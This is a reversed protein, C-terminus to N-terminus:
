DPNRTTPTYVDYRVGDVLLDSTGGGARTGMPPRLTVVRGSDAMHQAARLESASYVGGPVVTLRGGKGPLPMSGANGKLFNVLANRVGQNSLAARGAQYGPLAFDLGADFVTAATPSGTASLTAQYTVTPTPQNTLLERMLAQANDLGKAAYLGGVVAGVGTPATGTAFLVGAGVQMGAGVLGAVRGVFTTLAQVGEPRGGQWPIMQNVMGGPEFAGHCDMCTRRHLDSPTLRPRSVSTGTDTVSGAGMEAFYRELQNAYPAPGDAVLGQPTFLQQVPTPPQLGMPDTANRPDNGVYRYFNPDGAALGLPDESLFRGTSPDYYRARYYYEELAADYERGTFKFRDGNAANTESAIAGYSDYALQDLVAGNPDAVQRVSGLKDALYWRTSSGAYRAFLQDVAQGYLYRNTLAGSGNFDAYPNDGAYVTWSQVGAGAGSGDADLWVGLRRDQVDHTFREETLMTGAANKVVVKTLRNRHDWSYETKRGDAIRTKTLRNGEADYTYQYVGDSTLRNGAGTTYGSLTRNGNLDYSFSGTQAGSVTSLQGTADYSVNLTGEPGTQLVLRGGANYGYSFGSLAGAVSSTHTIGTLRDAADYSFNSSLSPGGSVTATRVLGSLRQNADYALDVSPGQVGSVQLSASSLQQHGNYGYAISGGLNDALSTRAGSPDYGFTLIVRPVGPTGQNDVSSLRGAADYVQTYASDPDSASLLQGAADYAWSLTRTVQNQADLWQEATRRGLDDYLYVVQRGNRDTKGVLQGAVDYRFTRSVSVPSTGGALVVQTTEAVPRNLGDFQFTTTNNVPDTVSVRNGVADYASRVVGNRPDTVTLTRNLKDYGYLTTENLANRESLVNNLTDYTFYTAEPLLPGTGDPDPQTVSTRRGALDYATVVTHGLNDTTGILNGTSDYAFQVVPAALPGGGDPDPLTETARRNLVDYTWLSVRGLPDTSSVQNGALDYASHVVAASQPGTGDPDPGVVRVLRGRRDFDSQTTRNLADTQAVAQGAVDYVVRQVSGLANTVATQRNRVDYSVDTPRQLPDLTRIANGAADLILQTVPATLPGSGDPDPATVQILRGAGDYGNVATRGLEDTTTLTRGAADYTTFRAQGLPDIQQVPRNLVDYRTEYVRQQAAPLTRPDAPISAPNMGTVDYRIQKTVNGNPDYDLTTIIQEPGRTQTLQNLVNYTHTTLAGRPDQVTLLNGVADYTRQVSNGLADTTQLLRDLPDYRFQTGHGNADVVLLIRGKGDYDTREVAGDAYHTQVAHNRNDYVQQTTRGLEDTAAEFNGAPDYRFSVFAHDAFETQVRHQKRDYAHRTTHGRPDTESIVQGMVDYTWAQVLPGLPGTGDPDPLSEQRKRGLLDYTASVTIGTADTVAIRNGRNDYTTVVTSPLGTTVTLVQGASNYTHLTTFNGDPIADNGKPETRSQVLGRATYTMSSANGLADTQSLVNGNAPDITFNTVRGGPQAISTVQSFIPEYTMSTVTGNRDVIQTVNGLSNFQYVEAYGLADTHSQMLRNSNWTYTESAGDPYRLQILQCQDDYDYLTAHGREDVFTSRFVHQGPDAGFRFLNYSLHTTQGEADTVEFARQNAYYSYVHSGGDPETIKNMLGQLLGSAYYEYRVVAAATQADSPSTVQTLYAKATSTGAPTLHM